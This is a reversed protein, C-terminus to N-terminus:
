TLITKVSSGGSFNTHTTEIHLFINLLYRNMSDVVIWVNLIYWTLQYLM